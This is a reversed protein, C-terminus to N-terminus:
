DAEERFRSRTTDKTDEIILVALFSLVLNSKEGESLGVTLSEVSEEKQKVYINIGEM